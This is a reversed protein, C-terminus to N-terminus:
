QSGQQDEPPNEDNPKPVPKMIHPPLAGPRLGAPAPSLTLSASGGRMLDGAWQLRADGLSNGGTQGTRFNGINATCSGSAQGPQQPHHSSSGMALADQYSVGFRRMLDQAKVEPSIYSVRLEARMREQEAQQPTLNQPQSSNSAPQTNQAAQSQRAQEDNNNSM